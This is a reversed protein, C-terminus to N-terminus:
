SMCGMYSVLYPILLATVYSCKDNSDCTSELQSVSYKSDQGRTDITAAWALPLIAAAATAYKM